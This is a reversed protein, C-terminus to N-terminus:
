QPELINAAELPIDQGPLLTFSGHRLMVAALNHVLPLAQAHLYRFVADSKWRGQLQIKDKDINGCVLAMAGGSQLSRASVDSPHYNLHPLSATAVRLSATILKSSVYSWRNNKCVACIPTHPPAQQSRLYLVRRVLTLMPCAISHGSRGHGIVEGCERNKQTDFTLSSHTARQIDNDSSTMTDLKRHGVTLTIDRLLLPSNDNSKCHEGPRLMYFLGLWTMDM